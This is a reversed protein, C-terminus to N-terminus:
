ILEIKAGFSGYSTIKQEHKYFGGRAILLDLGIIFGLYSPLNEERYYRTSGSWDTYQLYYFGRHRVVLTQNVEQVGGVKIRNYELSLEPKDVVKTAIFLKAEPMACVRQFKGQSIYKTM